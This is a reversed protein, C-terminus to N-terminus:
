EHLRIRKKSPGESHSCLAELEPDQMGNQVLPSDASCAFNCNSPLWDVAAFNSLSSQPYINTDAGGERTCTEMSECGPDDLKFTGDCHLPPHHAAETKFSTTGCPTSQEGDMGAGGVGGGPCVEFGDYYCESSGASSSYIMDEQLKLSLLYEAEYCSALNYEYKLLEDQEKFTQSQMPAPLCATDTELNLEDIDTEHGGSLPQKKTKM